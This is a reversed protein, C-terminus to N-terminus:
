DADSPDGDIEAGRDPTHMAGAPGADEIPLRITFATGKGIDSEVSLTGGHKDVIVSRAIALGQGTGRGVEKTTFFPDFIRERIEEPIGAGTDAVRVEVWAGVQRTRITVTGKRGEGERAIDGISHAANVIMNLIAQNFEGPLCLVQPLNDDLDLDLDADYKWENHSVTATSRICQNLDAMTKEVGGPHSFEKMALVIAAIRGIGELSQDLARPVQEALYELNTNDVLGQAQSLLEAPIEGQRGAELISPFSKAMAVLSEFAIQLFEINDGVYQTPTNIEHAIGSALRGVSELKQAHNLDQEMRRKDTIDEVLEIAAVVRGLQDHVPSSVLRYNRVGGEQPTATTAEHVKGDRLTQITPCYYCPEESPPSNFAHHCVPRTDAEVNPFWARLQRNMELIRLDPGIMSVGIGINDVIQRFKEESARLTEEMRKQQSVDRVTAQLLTHGGIELRAFLVTAPFEEGGIRKHRWEFSHGGERMGTEIAELALERSLRGGPQHEPSLDWPCCSSFEVEDKAGFMALCAPNGSTFHWSPPELTMIADRSSRFLTRYREESQRVAYEMEHRLIVGSLTNSVALLFREMSEDRPSGDEVYLNFVGLLQDNYQLPACFHGHPAMGDYAVDHRGDVCDAFQVERQAAARGCLCWGFPVRACKELLVEPLGYQARLVLTDTGEEVLFISGKKTIALEPVTLVVELAQQLIADLSQAALSLGLIENLVQERLYVLHLDAETKKRRTINRLTGVAHWAGHVRVASLSLEIPFVTGDMHLATLERTRGIAPGEGSQWFREINGQFAEHYQSPALLDHLDKGMAEEATWGFVREAAFNYFSIRGGDDMMLIPDQAASAISQLQAESDRLATTRERIQRELERHIRGASRILAGWVWLMLALTLLSALVPLLSRAQRSRLLSDQRDHMDAMLRATASAYAQKQQEYAPGFLVERAVERHGARVAEFARNEMEVLRANAADIQEATQRLPPDPVLAIVEKIAADLQPEIERFRREGKLDGTAAAMCASITLMGDLRIIEGNLYQLRLEQTLARQSTRYSIATNWAMWACIAAGLVLAGKLLRTPFSPTLDQPRGARPGRESDLRDCEERIPM